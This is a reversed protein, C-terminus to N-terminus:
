SVSYLEHDYRPCQDSETFWRCNPKCDLCAAIEQGSKAKKAWDHDALMGRGIAVFDVANEVLWRAEEPTRIHYVAIVPISVHKKIEAGCYTIWHYPFDSPGLSPHAIGPDTRIGAHHIQVIVPVGRAHCGEVIRRFGDIQQDSWIGLQSRRIRGKESVCSAEVIILGCGGEAKRPYHVEHRATVLGDDQAWGFCVVPPFVIRNPITVNKISLPSFLDGM